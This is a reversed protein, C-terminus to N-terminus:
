QTIERQEFESLSLKKDNVWDYFSQGSKFTIKSYEFEINVRANTIFSNKLNDIAKEVQEPTIKIKTDITLEIFGNEKDQDDM